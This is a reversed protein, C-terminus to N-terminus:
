SPARFCVRLIKVGHFEEKGYEKGNVYKCEGGLIM